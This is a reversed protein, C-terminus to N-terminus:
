KTVATVTILETYEDCVKAGGYGGYQGEVTACTDDTFYITLLNLSSCGDDHGTIAIDSITKGVLVKKAANTQRKAEKKDWVTDM